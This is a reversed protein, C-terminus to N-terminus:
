NSVGFHGAGWYSRFRRHDGSDSFDLEQHEDEHEATRLLHVRPTISSYIMRNEDFHLLFPGDTLAHWPPLVCFCMGNTIGPCNAIQSPGSGM